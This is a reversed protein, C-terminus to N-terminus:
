VRSQPFLVKVMEPRVVRSQADVLGFDMEKYSWVAHGVGMSDLIELLDRVWAVASVEPATRIVGFEGCYLPKGTYRVFYEAGALYKEMQARDNRREWATRYFKGVYEPHALLYQPLGDMRGPYEVTTDFDLLDKSFCAKQHTFILPDYFHFNCVVNPDDILRVQNLTFVSNAENSGVVVVREPDIERIARVADACLANWLWGTADSIENLLEFALRGGVGRYRRALNRWIALFRERLRPDSFLPVTKEMEGYIHGEAHHLDLVMNLSYKECWGLCLDIYALGQEMPVHSAEPSEIMDFDVPLRVHDAGWGAIRRIDEERIFTDFHTRRSASYQSLWGGLNVGSRYGNFSAM